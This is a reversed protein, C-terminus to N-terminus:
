KAVPYWSLRCHRPGNGNTSSPNCPMTFRVRRPREDAFKAKAADDATEHQRYSWKQAKPDHSNFSNLSAFNFNVGHSCQACSSFWILMILLQLIYVVTTINSDCYNAEPNAEISEVTTYPWTPVYHFCQVHSMRFPLQQCSLAEKRDIHQRGKLHSPHKSFGSIILCTVLEGICMSVNRGSPRPCINFGGRDGPNSFRGGM